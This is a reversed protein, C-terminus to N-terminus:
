DYNFPDKKRLARMKLRYKIEDRIWTLPYIIITIINIIIQVM